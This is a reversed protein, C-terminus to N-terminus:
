RMGPPTRNAMSTCRAVPWRGHRASDVSKWDFPTDNKADATANGSFVQIDKAGRQLFVTNHCDVERLDFQDVTIGHREQSAGFPIADVESV